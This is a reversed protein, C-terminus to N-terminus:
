RFTYTNDAYNMSSEDNGIFLLLGKGVQAKLQARRSIYTEKAFM